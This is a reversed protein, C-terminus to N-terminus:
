TVHHRGMSWGQLLLDLIFFSFSFSFSFSFLFYFHSLCKALDHCDDFATSNSNGLVIFICGTTFILLIHLYTPCTSPCFFFYGVGTIISPSFSYSTSLIKFLCCIFPFFLYRTYYFLNKASDSVQSSFSFKPFAFFVISSKSLSYQCSM